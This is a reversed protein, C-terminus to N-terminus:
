AVGTRCASPREVGKGNVRLEDTSFDASVTTGDAFATQVQQGDKSVVCQTMEEAALRCFRGSWLDHIAKTAAVRQDDFVNIGYQIRRVAWEDRPTSGWAIAAMAHPWDAGSPTQHMVLGHLALAWVPTWGDVLSAVPWEPHKRIAQDLGHPLSGIADCAVAGPLTGFEASVAGFVKRVEGLVWEMGRQHASRTGRHRPHYNVELPAMWYDCYGMGRLGLAKLKELHGSVRSPPLAAPWTGYELGGAWAGRLLPEGYVDQIICDADWDPAHPVNMQYNDHVQAQYGLENITRVMARFGEEGGLRRDIPFRTPYLGDHGRANWGVSQTYLREIGAHRLRGVAAAAEAFTMANIFHSPPLGQTDSICPGLNQIGHFLKITMAQLQYAVDASEAARQALTPKKLDELIHRRLRKAVFHSGDGGQAIVIVRFEREAPEVPDVWSQRLVSAFGVQGGGHGDTMVRCQTEGAAQSALLMLGGHEDWAAAIPLTSSLEWRPQELYIMWRDAVAPKNFTACLTAGNLPLLLKGAGGSVRALGPLVEIAFLRFREMQDEYVETSGLLISLEGHVIRLSLGVTLGCSAESVVVHAEHGHAELSVLRYQELRSERRLTKDHVELALLPAAGWIRGVSEMRLTAWLCGDHEAIQLTLSGDTIETLMADAM